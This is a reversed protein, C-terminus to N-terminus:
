KQPREFCIVTSFGSRATSTYDSIAAMRWGEGYLRTVVANIDSESRSEVVRCTSELRADGLYNSRMAVGMAPYGCAGLLSFAPLLLALWIRKM